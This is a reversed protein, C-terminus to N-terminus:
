VLARPRRHNKAVVDIRLRFRFLPQQMAGRPLFVGIAYEDVIWGEVIRLVQRLDVRRPFM